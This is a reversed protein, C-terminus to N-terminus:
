APIYFDLPAYYYQMSNVPVFVPYNADMVEPMLDSPSQEPSLPAPSSSLSSSESASWLPSLTTGAWEPYEYIPQYYSADLNDFYNTADVMSSQPLDVQSAPFISIPSDTAIMLENTCNYPPAKGMSSDLPKSEDHGDIPEPVIGRTVPMGYNEESIIDVSSDSGPSTASSEPSSLTYLDGYFEPLDPEVKINATDVGHKQKLHRMFCSRRKISTRCGPYFCKHGGPNLHTERRHRACSSPDSFSAVCVNCKFPREKTHVNRHTKLGTYQSFAKGCIECVHPKYGTHLHQHRTLDGKRQFSKFCTSCSLQAPM